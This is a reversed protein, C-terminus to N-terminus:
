TVYGISSPTAKTSLAGGFSSGLTALQAQVTPLLEQWLDVKTFSASLPVSVASVVVSATADTTPLCGARIASSRSLVADQMLLAHLENPNPTQNVSSRTSLLRNSLIPSSVAQHYAPM